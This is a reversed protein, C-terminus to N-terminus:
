FEKLVWKLTEIEGEIRNISGLVHYGEDGQMSYQDLKDYYAQQEDRFDISSQLKKKIENETKM